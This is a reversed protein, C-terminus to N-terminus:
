RAVEDRLQFLKSNSGYGYNATLNGPGEAVLVYRRKILERLEPSETFGAVIYNPPHSRVQEFYRDVTRDFEEGFYGSKRFASVTDGTDILEGAYSRRFFFTDESLVNNEEALTRVRTMFEYAQPLRVLRKVTPFGVTRVDACLLVVVLVGLVALRAETLRGVNVCLYFWLILMAPIFYHPGAGHFNLYYAISCVVFAFGGLVAWAKNKPARKGPILVYVALALLLPGGKVTTQNAAPHFLMMLFGIVSGSYAWGLPVISGGRVWGANPSYFGVSHKYYLSLDFDFLYSLLFVWIGVIALVWAMLHLVILEGSRGRRRYRYRWLTFGTLAAVLPAMRWNTHIVASGIGGCVIGHVAAMLRTQPLWWISVAISWMFFLAATVDFRGFFIVEKASLMLSLYGLSGIYLSRLVADPSERGAMKWAVILFSYPLLLVAFRTVQWSELFPFSRTILLKVLPDIPGPAMNVFAVQNHDYINIGAKLALVHLWVTAERTEIELPYFFALASSVVAILLFVPTLLAITLRSVRRGAHTVSPSRVRGGKLLIDGPALL